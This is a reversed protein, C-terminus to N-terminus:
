QTLDTNRLGPVGGWRCHLLERGNSPGFRRKAADSSALGPVSGKDILSM